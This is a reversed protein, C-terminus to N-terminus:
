LTRWEGEPGECEPCQIAIFKVWEVVEEPAVRGHGAEPDSAFYVEGWEDAIIVTLRGDAVIHGPDELVPVGLRTLGVDGAPMAEPSIVVIDAGWSELPERTSAAIETVYGVCEECELQHMTVLVRPGRTPRLGVETEGAPERLRVSPLRDGKRLVLRADRASRDNSM